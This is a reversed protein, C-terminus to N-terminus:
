ASSINKFHFIHMKIVVGISEVRTSTFCGAEMKEKFARKTLTTPLREENVPIQLSRWQIHNNLCSISKSSTSM